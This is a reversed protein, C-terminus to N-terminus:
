KDTFPLQYPWRFILGPQSSLYQKESIHIDCEQVQSNKWWSAWLITIIWEFKFALIIPKSSIFTFIFLFQSGSGTGEVRRFHVFNLLYRYSLNWSHQTNSYCGSYRIVSSKSPFTRIGFSIRLYISNAFSCLLDVFWCIISNSSKKHMAKSTFNYQCRLSVSSFPLPILWMYNRIARIRSSHRPSLRWSNVRRDWMHKLFQLMWVTERLPNGMGDVVRESTSFSRGPSASM